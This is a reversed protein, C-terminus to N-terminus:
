MVWAAREWRRRSIARGMQSVCNGSTYGSHREAEPLWRCWAASERLMSLAVRASADQDHCAAWLEWANRAHYQWAGLARGDDGLTECWVIDDRFGSEEYAYVALLRQEHTDPTAAGIASALLLLTLPTM